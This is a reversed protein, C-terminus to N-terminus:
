LSGRIILRTPVYTQIPQRTLIFDAALMGIQQFDTSIATIGNDLIEFMPEDNYVVIGIQEGPKYGKRRAIKVTDLLHSHRIILYASEKRIDEERISHIMRYPFGYDKCFKEFYPICSRPHESNDPFVLVIEQYKRFLELGSEMSEYLTTDFGQCVYSFQEKPFKGFDLLLVKKRDLKDLIESYCDNRYNIILYYNFRGANDQIIKNFREESGQHFYLDIKYNIPLKAAMANYLEFKFSSYTDLLLLINVVATSVYYGKTPASDVIGQAILDQFAKFVTDRSLGYERSIRNISPLLEGQQYEKRSIADSISDALQKAKSIKGNFALKQM